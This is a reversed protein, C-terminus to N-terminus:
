PTQGRLHTPPYVLSTPRGGDREDNHNRKRAALGEHALRWLDDSVIRPVPVEIGVYVAKGIYATNHLRGIATHHPVGMLNGVHRADHGAACAEFGARILRAAAEDLVLMMSPRARVYGYPPRTPWKGSRAATLRGMTCRETISELEFEAAADLIRDTFRTASSDVQPGTTISEIRVGYVKLHRNMIDNNSTSRGFRDRRWVVLVDFARTEALELLKNIKPRNADRGSGVERLIRVVHHGRRACYALDDQVQTALSYGKKQETTSVRAYIAARQVRELPQMPLLSVVKAEYKVWGPLTM